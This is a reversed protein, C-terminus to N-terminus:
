PTWAGAFNVIEELYPLRPTTLDTGYLIAELDETFEPTSKTTDFILEATPRFGPIQQPIATITWEFEIANPTQSNTKRGVTGPVATLNSLIHIKYGAASSLDNGLGTRYSLGFLQTDQGAVFLGNDVEIVGEYELFEDPYTYARLTASWDGVNVIENYKIGEFYLPQTTFGVPKEDVGTLGNWAVGSGDSLYLVGKEVGSEYTKTGLADWVLATM